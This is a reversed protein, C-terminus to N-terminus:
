RVCGVQLSTLQRVWESKSMHGAAPLSDCATIFLRKQGQDTVLFTTVADSPEHDPIGPCLGKLNGPARDKPGKGTHLNSNITVWNDPHIYAKSNTRHSLGRSNLQGVDRGRKISTKLLILDSALSHVNYRLYIQETKYKLLLSTSYM